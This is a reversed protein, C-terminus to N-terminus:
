IAAHDGLLTRPDSTESCCNRIMRIVTPMRRRCTALELGVIYTGEETMTWQM